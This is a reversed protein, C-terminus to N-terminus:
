NNGKKNEFPKSAVKAGLFVSLVGLDQWDFSILQGSRICTISWTILIITVAIIMMFRTSSLNGNSESLMEKLLHLM